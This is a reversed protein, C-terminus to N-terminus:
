FRKSPRSPRMFRKRLCCAARLDCNAWGQDVREVDCVVMSRNKKLANGLLTVKQFFILTLAVYFKFVLMKIM